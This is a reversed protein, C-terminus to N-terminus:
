DTRNHWKHRTGNQVVSDGAELHVEQGDDLELWLEGSVIYDIDVTDTTHMGPNDKEYLNETGLSKMAAVAAPDPDSAPREGSRSSAPAMTVFVYRFGGPPPFMKPTDARTGDDPLAPAVDR